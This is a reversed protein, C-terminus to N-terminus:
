YSGLYYIIKMAESKIVLFLGLFIQLKFTHRTIIDEGKGCGEVMHQLCKMSTELNKWGATDHFVQYIFNIPNLYRVM